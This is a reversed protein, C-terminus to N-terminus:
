PSGGAATLTEAACVHVSPPDHGCGRACVNAGCQAIGGTVQEGVEFATDRRSGIGGIQEGLRHQNGPPPHIVQWGVGLSLAHPQEGDGGVHQCVM